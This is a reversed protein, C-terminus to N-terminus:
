WEELIFKINLVILGLLLHPGSAVKKLREFSNVINLLLCIIILDLLDFDFKM